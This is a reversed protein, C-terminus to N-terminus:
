RSTRRASTPAPATWPRSCRTWRPSPTRPPLSAPPAATGDAGYKIADYVNAGNHIGAAQLVQTEPSVAKVAETSGRMYDEGAVQGTGILSTLECVMVDPHLEAIAKGEEVSDACVVTLIGVENARAITAALEHVTMPNEAHNLFTAKVGAAASGRAPRPGAVAPKLSEWSSRAPFSTPCDAIIKPFTM